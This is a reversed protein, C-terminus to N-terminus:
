FSKIWVNTDFNIYNIKLKYIKNNKNKVTKIIDALVNKNFVSMNFLITLSPSYKTM